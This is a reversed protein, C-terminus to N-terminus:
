KGVELSKIIFTVVGFIEYKDIPNEPKEEPKDTVLYLGRRPNPQHRKIFYEGNQVTIVIDNEKPQKAKDIMIWDGGFIPIGEMADGEIQILLNSDSGNTLLQNLNIREVLPEISLPQRVQSKPKNM